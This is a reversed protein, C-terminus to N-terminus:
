RFLLRYVALLLGMLGVCAAAVLPIFLGLSFVPGCYEWIAPWGVLLGVAAACLFPGYAIDRHGTLVWRLLAIMAGAFPAMFFVILASQWGLFAGIMAMLTVDGFGMAEQRLVHSAVARVSWVLGGGFALGTLATLLGQWTSGGVRWALGIMLGGVLWLAAIWPSMKHRCISAVLYRLANRWGSRTWWTKHLLAFCWAAFWTQGLVLGRTSNLISAWDRPATLLLPTSQLAAAPDGAPVPLLSSPLAASLGLALLTGSITVQDPITQEDLDIFTAVAMLWLLLVQSSFQAWADSVPPRPWGPPLLGGSTVWWYWSPVTVAAALEILLPRVWFGRGHLPEERRLFWWGLIPIRDRWDRPASDAPAPSWPSISRPHWAWRYIAWNLPGGLFAGVTALLLLRPM